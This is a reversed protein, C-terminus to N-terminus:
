AGPDDHAQALTRVERELDRLERWARTSFLLLIVFFAVFGFFMYTRAVDHM